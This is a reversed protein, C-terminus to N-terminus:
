PVSRFHLCTFDRAAYQRGGAPDVSAYAPLVPADNRHFFSSGVGIVHHHQRAEDVQMTMTTAAGVDHLCAVGRVRDGCGM